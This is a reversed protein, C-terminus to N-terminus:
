WFYCWHLGRVDIPDHLVEDNRGSENQNTESTGCNVREDGSRTEDRLVGMLSVCYLKDLNSLWRLCVRLCPLNQNFVVARLTATKQPTEWRRDRRFMCVYVMICVKVSWTMQLVAAANTNSNKDLEAGNCRDTVTDATCTHTSSNCTQLSANSASSFHRSLEHLIAWQATALSRTRANRTSACTVM